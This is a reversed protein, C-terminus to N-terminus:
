NFDDGDDALPDHDYEGVEDAAQLQVVNDEPLICYKERNRQKYADFEATSMMAMDKFQEDVTDLIGTGVGDAHAVFSYQPANQIYKEDVRMAGAVRRADGTARCAMIKIATNSLLADVVRQNHIQSLDQHAVTIGVNASRCQALLRVLSTDNSIIDHCEDMYVYTPLRDEGEVLQRRQAANLILALFFRGFLELDTGLLAQPMNVLIVKSSSMEEYLNLKTKKAEFMSALAKKEKISYLRTVLENKTGQIRSDGGGMFQDEFYEKFSPELQDVYKWYKRIGDRKLIEMLTDLNANPIKLLLRILMGFMTNQRDTLAAGAPLLSQFIYKLLDITSTELALQDVESLSSDSTVLDLVNFACPFLVDQVDVTVLKDELPQGKGFLALKELPSILDVKSDMVVVSCEGKAVRELDRSILNTLLTSKGTGPPAMFFAPLVM